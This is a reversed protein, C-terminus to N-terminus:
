SSVLHVEMPARKGDMAHESPTHFHFQLLELEVGGVTAINGPKFNVQWCAFCSSSAADAWAEAQMGQM